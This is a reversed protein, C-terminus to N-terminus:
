IGRSWVARWLCLRGADWGNSIATLATTGGAADNVGLLTAMPVGDVFSVTSQSEYNYVIGLLGPVNKKYLDVISTTFPLDTSGNRNCAFLVNMGTRLM